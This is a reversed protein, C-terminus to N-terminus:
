RGCIPTSWNYFDSVLTRADHPPTSSDSLYDAVEASPGTVVLTRVGPDPEALRALVGAMTDDDGRGEVLLSTIESSSAVNAIGDRVRQLATAISAASGPLSGSFGASTAALTENTLDFQGGCTAYGLVGDATWSPFDGTTSPVDFGAWVVRIDDLTSDAIEQADSVSIPTTYDIRVTVVTGTGLRALQEQADGDFGEPGLFGWPRGGDIDALGFAGLRIAMPGLLRSGSGIPIAVEISIERDFLGSQIQGATVVAGPTLMAALDITARAAQAARGGRGIVLPQFLLLSLLALLLVAAVMIMVADTAIRFISRRVVRRMAREDFRATGLLSLDVPEVHDLIARCDECSGLHQDVLRRTPRDLTEDVYGELLDQIEDHTM